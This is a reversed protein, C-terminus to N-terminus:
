PGEVDAGVFETSRGGKLEDVGGTVGGPFGDMRLLWVFISNKGCIESYRTVLNSLVVDMVWHKLVVM